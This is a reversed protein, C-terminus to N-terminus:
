GERYCNGKSSILRLPGFIMMEEDCGWYWQKEKPELSHVILGTKPDREMLFSTILDRPCEVDVCFCCRAFAEKSFLQENIQKLHHETGVHYTWKGHAYLNQYQAAPYLSNVDGLVLYDDILDYDYNKLGPVWDSSLYQKYQCM